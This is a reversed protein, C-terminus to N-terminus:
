QIECHFAEQLFFFFFFFCLLVKAMIPAVHKEMCERVRQRTAKEEDTLLEDFQYYDSATIYIILLLNTYLFGLKMLIISIPRYFGRSM